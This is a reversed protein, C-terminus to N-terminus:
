RMLKRASMACAIRWPRGCRALPAGAKRTSSTMSSRGLDESRPAAMAMSDRGSRGAGIGALSFVPSSSQLASAPRQAPSCAAAGYKPILRSAGCGVRERSLSLLQLFFHAFHQNDPPSPAAMLRFLAGMDERLHEFALAEFDIDLVCRLCEGIGPDDVHAKDHWDDCHRLNLLLLDLVKGGGYAVAHPEGTIVAAHAVGKALADVVLKHAAALPNRM